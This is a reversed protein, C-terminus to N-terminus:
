ALASMKFDPDLLHPEVRWKHQSRDWQWAGTDIAGIWWTVMQGLSAAGVDKSAEVYQFNISRVPTIPLEPHSCDIVTPTQPGTIPLWSASWRDDPNALEPMDPEVLRVALDRCEKHVEVAETLSLLKDGVPVAIKALGYGPSGNHWGWWIRAEQPLRLSLSAVTDKMEDDTLGPTDWEELPVALDRLRAEYAAILTPGLVPTEYSSM